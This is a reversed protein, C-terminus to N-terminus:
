EELIGEDKQRRGKEELVLGLNEPEFADTFCSMM